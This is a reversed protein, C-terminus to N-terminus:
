LRDAPLAGVVKHQPQGDHFLILTPLTLVDYSSATGQNEDVDLKRRRHDQEWALRRCGATWRGDAARRM